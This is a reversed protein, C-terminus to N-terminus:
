SLNGELYITKYRSSNVDERFIDLLVKKAKKEISTQLQNVPGVLLLYTPLSYRTGVLIICLAYPINLSLAAALCYLGHVYAAGDSNRV